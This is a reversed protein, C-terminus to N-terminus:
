DQYGHEGVLPVFVVPERERRTYTNGDREVVTLWQHERSGVPM